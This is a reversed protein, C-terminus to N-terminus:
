NKGRPLSPTVMSVRSSPSHMYRQKTLVRLCSSHYKRFKCLKNTNQTLILRSLGRQYCCSWWSAWFNHLFVFVLFCKRCTVSSVHCMIHSMHCMTTTLMKKFNWIGLEELKPFLTNQLNSPFHNIVILLLKKSEVTQCWSCWTCCVTDWTM